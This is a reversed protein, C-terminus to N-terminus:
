ATTEEEQPQDANQDASVYVDYKTNYGADIEEQTQKKPKVNAIATLKGDICADLYIRWDQQNEPLVSLFAIKQPNRKVWAWMLRRMLYKFSDGELGASPWIKRDHFKLENGDKDIDIITLELQCRLEENRDLKMNSYATLQLVYLGKDIDKFDSQQNKMDEDVENVWHDAPLTIEENM